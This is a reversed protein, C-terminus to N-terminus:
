MLKIIIKKCEGLSTIKNNEINYILEEYRKSDELALTIALKELSKSNKVKEEFSGNKIEKKKSKKLSIKAFIFGSIFTLIYYIFDYSFVFSEEKKDLLEEKIYAEKVNVQMKSVVLEKVIKEELDFYKINLNPILFNKEAVFAFKQSWRGQYGNKTLKINKIPKQSFIKVDQINFTIPKLNKFNGIGDIVIELHYPEYSKLSKIEKKVEISFNGVLVTDSHQVSVALSKQKLYKNTYSEKDRDNDRGGITADISEQTTKKMIIDFDFVIQGERKAYAIYEYSNIRKSNLIKEEERLLEVSYNEYDGVPNFDITYLESKDSFECVYKLYIAENTMVVSKDIQANWQYTSAELHLFIFLLLVVRGLNNRM